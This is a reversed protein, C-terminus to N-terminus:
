NEDQDMQPNVPVQQQPPNMMPHQQHQGMPNMGQNQGQQQMMPMSPNQMMKQMHPSMGGSDQMMMRHKGRPKFEGAQWYKYSYYTTCLMSSISLVIVFYAITKTCRQCTPQGASWVLLLTGLALAILEMAFAMEM